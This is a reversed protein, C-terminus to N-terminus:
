VVEDGEQLADLLLVGAHLVDVEGRGQGRRLVDHDLLELDEGFLDHGVEAAAGGVGGGRFLWVRPLLRRGPSPRSGSRGHVGAKAPTVTMPYLRRLRAASTAAASFTKKALL